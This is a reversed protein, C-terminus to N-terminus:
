PSVVHSGSLNLVKEDHAEDHAEGAHLHDTTTVFVINVGRGVVGLQFQEHEEAQQRDGLRQRNKDGLLQAVPQGRLISTCYRIPRPPGHHTHEDQGIVECLVPPM